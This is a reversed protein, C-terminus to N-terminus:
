FEGRRAVSLALYCKMLFLVGPNRLVKLKPSFIPSACIKKVFNELIRTGNKTHVVEPHFQIGYVPRSADKMAAVPSNPTHAIVKFGKPLKDIRDGHSMWVDEKKSLGSFLDRRDDIQLLAHGYERKKSKAVRGGYTKVLAQMGYCIGLVPRGMELLGAALRPARRQHVSFPSGSLIIGQPHFGVIKEMEATCPMIECYVGMERVRRAILQTYQSGYDLILIKEQHVKDMMPSILGTIRRKRRLLSTM